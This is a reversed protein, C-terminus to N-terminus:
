CNSMHPYKSLGMGAISVNVLGSCGNGKSDRGHPLCCFYQGQDVKRVKPYFTLIHKQVFVVAPPKSATIRYRSGDPFQRYWWADNIPNYYTGNSADKYCKIKTDEDEYVYRISPDTVLKTMANAVSISAALTM